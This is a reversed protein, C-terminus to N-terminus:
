NRILVFLAVLSGAFILQKKLSRRGPAGQGRRSWAVVAGCQTTGFEGPVVSGRYIEVAELDQPRLFSDIDGYAATVQTGDLWLDPRCGRMVIRSGFVGMPVVRMGPVTRMLDTFEVVNAAEIDDRTLFTGSMTERRLDFGRLPGLPRRPVAVVVPAIETPTASLQILMDLRVDAAVGLTDGVSRFGLQEAVLVYRGPVVDGFRFRGREDTIVITAADAGLSFARLRLEVYQLPRGSVADVVQGTVASHEPDNSQGAGGDPCLAGGVLAVGLAGATRRVRRTM